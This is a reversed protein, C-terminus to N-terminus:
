RAHGGVQLRLLRRQRQDPGRTNWGNARSTRPSPASPPAPTTSWSTSGGSTRRRHAGGAGQRADEQRVDLAMAFSRRGLKKIEAAVPELNEMKRSAIVVDAGARAFEIAISRGIGVGGGTVITVKDRSRSRRGQWSAEEDEVQRRWNVPLAARTESSGRRETFVVGIIGLRRPSQARLADARREASPRLRAPHRPPLAPRLPGRPRWPGHRRHDSPRHEALQVRIQHRRGTGLRLELLTSDRRRERVRYHPSRRSAAREGRPRPPERDQVLRSELTGQEDRVQGEVVRWTSASSRRAGRVPGASPAQGGGVQRLRPPGLDRPRASPRHLAPAAAAARPSLGLAPPLRHPERERETAITSFAARAQRDRRSRRGRARPRAVTPFPVAGHRGLTSGIAPASSRRTRRPRRPRQGRRPRARAM